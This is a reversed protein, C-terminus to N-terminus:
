LTISEKSRKYHASLPIYGDWRLIKNEQRIEHQLGSSLPNQASGKGKKKKIMNEGNKCISINFKSSLKGKKNEDRNKNTNWLLFSKNGQHFTNFCM